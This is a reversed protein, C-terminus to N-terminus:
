RSFAKHISLRVKRKKKGLLVKYKYINNKCERLFKCMVWTPVYRSNWRSSIYFLSELCPGWHILWQVRQMNTVIISSPLFLLRVSADVFCIVHRVKTVRETLAPRWSTRPLRQKTWHLATNPVRKGVVIETFHIVFLVQSYLLLTMVIVNYMVFLTQFQQVYDFPFLNLYWMVLCLMFWFIYSIMLYCMFNLSINIYIYLTLHNILVFCNM